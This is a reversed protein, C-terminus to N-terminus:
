WYGPKNRLNVQSDMVWFKTETLVNHQFTQRGKKPLERDITISYTWINRYDNEFEKVAIVKGVRIGSNTGVVLNDGEKIRRGACDLPGINEEYTEEHAM